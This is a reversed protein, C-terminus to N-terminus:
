FIEILSDNIKKKKSIRKKTIFNRIQNTYFMSLCLHMHLFVFLFISGIDIIKSLFNDRIIGINIYICLYM